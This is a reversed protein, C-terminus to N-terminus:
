SRRRILLASVGIIVLSFLTAVLIDGNTMGMERLFFYSM